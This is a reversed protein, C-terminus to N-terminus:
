KEEAYSYVKELLRRDSYTLFDFSNGSLMDTTVTYLIKQSWAHFPRQDAVFTELM